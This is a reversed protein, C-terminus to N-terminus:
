QLSDVSIHSRYTGCAVLCYIAAAKQDNDVDIQRRPVILLKEDSLMKKSRGVM